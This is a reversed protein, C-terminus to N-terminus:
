QRQPHPRPATHPHMQQLREGDDVKANKGNEPQNGGVANDLPQLQPGPLQAIDCQSREGDDSQQDAPGERKRIGLVGGGLLM